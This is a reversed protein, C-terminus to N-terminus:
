QGGVEDHPSHSSESFPLPDPITRGDLIFQDFSLKKKQDDTLPINWRKSMFDLLRISREHIRIADWDQEKAVEIESNSGSSYGRKRQGTPNKKEEFSENQLSSNISQSLPLLNGLSGTLVAMEQPNQIFQRFQNRWYWKDPTQPLIHEVSVTDKESKAFLEWTIKKIGTTEMLSYEYEFM